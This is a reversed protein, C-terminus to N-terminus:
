VFLVHRIPNSKSMVVKFVKNQICIGTQRMRRTHVFNETLLCPAPKQKGSCGHSYVLCEDGIKQYFKNNVLITRIDDWFFFYQIKSTGIIEVNVFPLLIIPILFKGKPLVYEEFNFKIKSECETEIEVVDGLRHITTVGSHHMVKEVGIEMKKMVMMTLGDLDNVNRDINARQLAVDLNTRLMLPPLINKLERQRRKLHKRSVAATHKSCLVFNGYTPADDVALMIMEVIEKPFICRKLM